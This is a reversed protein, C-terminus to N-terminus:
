QVSGKQQHSLILWVGFLIFMIPFFGIHHCIPLINQLLLLGGLIILVIGFVKKRPENRTDDPTSGVPPNEYMTFNVDSPTETGETQQQESPPQSAAQTQNPAMPRDFYFPEKPIVVLCVIYILFTVGGAFFLLVFLLRIMVPDIDFYEAIGGAVGGIMKEKRSRYLRKTM